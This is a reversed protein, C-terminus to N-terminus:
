FCGVLFIFGVSINKFILCAWNCYSLFSLIEIKFFFFGVSLFFLVLDMYNNM